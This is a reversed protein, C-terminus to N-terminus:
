YTSENNISYEYHGDYNELIKEIFSFSTFMGNMKFKGRTRLGFISNRISYSEEYNLKLNEEILDLARYSKYKQPKTYGILRLLNNYNLSDLKGEKTLSEAKKHILEKNLLFLEKFTLKIDTKSKITAIEKDKLLATIDIVSEVVSFLLLLGIKVLSILAPIGTFGVLSAAYMSAEQNLTKNCFVSIFNTFTLFLLLISVIDGLNEKDSEKGMYIYELEYELKKDLDNNKKLYSNFHEQLYEEFLLTNSLDKLFSADIFSFSQFIEKGLSTPSTLSAKIRDIIHVLEEKSTLMSHTALDDRRITKESIQDPESIVIELLGEKLLKSISDFFGDSNMAKTVMSYDFELNEFHYNQFSSKIREILGALNTIVEYENSVSFNSISLISNLSLLNNQLTEKMGELNYLDNIDRKQYKELLDYENLLSEYLEQGLSDKSLDLFQKYEVLIAEIGEKEQLVKDIINIAEKISPITSKILNEIQKFENNIRTYVDAILGKYYALREELDKFEEELKKLEEDDMDDRDILSLFLYEISADEYLNYYSIYMSVNQSVSDLLNMPNVYSDKVVEFIWPNNMKVTSNTIPFPCIKKVFQDKVKIDGNKLFLLGDRKVELGDVYSMLILVEKELSALKEDVTIKKTFAETILEKDKIISLLSLMKTVMDGISEYKMYDTAQNIFPAGEYDMLSTITSTEIEEINIDYLNMHALNHKDYDLEKTPFFTFEMYERISENLYSRNMKSSGYGGDLAFIHYENWLPLYFDGLVSEMSTKMTRAALIKFGQVRAAEITTMIISLILLLILSLTVTIVGEKYYRKM